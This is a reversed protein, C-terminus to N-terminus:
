HFSTRAANLWSNVASDTAQEAEEYNKYPGIVSGNDFLVYVGDEEATYTSKNALTVTQGANLWEYKRRQNM